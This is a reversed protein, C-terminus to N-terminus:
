RYRVTSFRFRRYAEDLSSRIEKDKIDAARQDLAAVRSRLRVRGRWPRWALFTVHDAADTVVRAYNSLVGGQGDPEYEATAASAWWAAYALTVYQNMPDRPIRAVLAAAEVERALEPFPRAAERNLSVWRGSECTALAALVRARMERRQGGGNVWQGLVSGLGLAGVLSGISGVDM